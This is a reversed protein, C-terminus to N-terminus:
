LFCKRFNLISDSPKTFSSWLKFCFSALKLLAIKQRHRFQSFFIGIMNFKYWVLSFLLFLNRRGSYKWCLVRKKRKEKKKCYQLTLMRPLKWPFFSFLEMYVLVEGLILFYLYFMRSSDNKLQLIWLSIMENVTTAFRYEYLTTQQILLRGKSKVAFQAVRSYMQRIQVGDDFCSLAILSKLSLENFEPRWCWEDRGTM